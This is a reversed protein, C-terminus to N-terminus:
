DRTEKPLSFIFEAGEPHNKATIKGDHALVITKCISLGIGMGKYGDTNSKESRYGGGDFITKLRNEDIGVGYDRIRFIVDDATEEIYLELPKESQAHLQANQLINLIVQQILMADMMVMADEDAVKVHIEAKPFRKRFQIVAAAAVEDQAKVKFEIWSLAHEFVVSVNEAATQATYSLPTKAVMFDITKKTDNSQVYGTATWTDTALDHAFEGGDVVSPSYAAFRLSGNKPWYYPFHSTGDFGAWFEGNKAFEVNDLYPTDTGPTTFNSGAPEDAWYGVVTFREAAPYETGDIAQNVQAKTLMSTVPALKIESNDEVYVPETKACSAIAAVALLSFFIKKM